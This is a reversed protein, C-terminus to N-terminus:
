GDGRIVYRPGGPDQLWNASAASRVRGPRREAQLLDNKDDRNEQGVADAGHHHGLMEASTYDMQIVLLGKHKQNKVARHSTARGRGSIRWAFWARYPVHTLNHRIREDKTLEGPDM